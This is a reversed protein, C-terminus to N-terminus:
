NLQSVTDIENGLVDLKDYAVLRVQASPMRVNRSRSEQNRIAVADEVPNIVAAPRSGYWTNGLDFQINFGLHRNQPFAVVLIYDPM